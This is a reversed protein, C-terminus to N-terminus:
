LKTNPTPIGHVWNADGKPITSGTYWVDGAVNAGGSATAQLIDATGAINILGSVWTQSSFDFTISGKSTVTKNKDAVTLSAMESCVFKGIAAQAGAEVIMDNINLITKSNNKSDIVTLVGASKVDLKETVNLTMYADYGPTTGAQAIVKFPTIDLASKVVLNKMTITTIAAKVSSEFTAKAAGDVEYTTISARLKSNNLKNLDYTAVASQVFKVTTTPRNYLAAEFRNTPEDVESIYQGPAVGLTNINGTVQSSIKDVVIGENAATASNGVALVGAVTIEAGVKNNLAGTEVFLKADQQTTAGTTEIVFRDYNNIAGGKVDVQHSATAPTTAKALTAIGYNNITGKLTSIKAEGNFNVTAEHADDEVAAIEGINVVGGLTAAGTINLVGGLDKCCSQMVDINSNVVYGTPISLEATAGTADPVIIKGGSLTVTKGAVVADMAYSASLEIDGLLRVAGGNTKVATVAARLALEDTAILPAKDFNIGKVEIWAGTAYANREITIDKKSVIVAKNAANILIIQLEPIATETPLVPITIYSFNTGGTAAAAPTGITASITESYEKKVENDTLYLNKGGEGNVIGKSSLGVKTLLHKGSPDFLIVKKIVDTVGAAGQLKLGVYGNLNNTAFKTTKAGGDVITTLGYKFIENTFENITKGRDAETTVFGSVVFNDNSTAVIYNSTNTKDYPAYVIYEGAYVTSNSTDFLGDSGNVEGTTTTYGPWKNDAIAAASALYSLGGAVPDYQKALSNTGDSYGDVPQYSTSLYEGTCPDIEPETGVKKWGFHNFKYNTFVRGDAASLLSGATKQGDKICVGTWALGIEDPTYILTTKILNPRWFFKIGASTSEWQGRTSADGETSGLLAFGKELKILQGDEYGNPASLIDQDQCAAFVAPMALAMFLHKTKM